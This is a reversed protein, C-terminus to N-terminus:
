KAGGKETRPPSIVVYEGSNRRVCIAAWVDDKTDVDDWMACCHGCIPHTISPDKNDIVEGFIKGVKGCASCVDKDTAVPKSGFYSKLHARIDAALEPYEVECEQAYASMAPRTFKDHTWDLVFYNCDEHKGDPDNLREVRYKRYIGVGKDTIRPFPVAKDTAVPASALWAHADRVAPGGVRCLAARITKRVEEPIAPPAATLRKIEQVAEWQEHEAMSGIRSELYELRHRYMEKEQKTTMKNEM